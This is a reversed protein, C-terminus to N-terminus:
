HWCGRCGAVYSMALRRLAIVPTDLTSVLMLNDRTDSALGNLSRIDSSSALPGEIPAAEEAMPYSLSTAEWVGPSPFSRVLVNQVCM